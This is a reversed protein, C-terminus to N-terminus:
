EPRLHRVFDRSPDEIWGFRTIKPASDPLPKALGVIRAKLAAGKLGPEVALIRAALAAIRAAAHAGAIELGAQAIECGVPVAVDAFPKAGTEAGAPACAPSNAVVAIVTDLETPGLAEATRSPLKSVSAPTVFLLNPFRVAVLRFMLDSTRQDPERALLAVTAPTRGVMVVANAITASDVKFAELRIAGGEALLPVTLELPTCAAAQCSATFPSAAAYPLRDKDVLDFGIIEGEGDRALRRAIDPQTYDIGDGIIAVAVGGPDTGPPVPPKKKPADAAHVGMVAAMALVFAAILRAPSM